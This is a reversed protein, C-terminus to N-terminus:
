RNGITEAGNRQMRIRVKATDEALLEVQASRRLPAGPAIPQEFEPHQVHIKQQIAADRGGPLTHLMAIGNVDTSQMCAQSFDINMRLRKMEERREAAWWRHKRQNAELKLLM